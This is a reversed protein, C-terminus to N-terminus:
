KTAGVEVPKWRGKAKKRMRRALKVLFNIRDDSVVFSHMRSPPLGEAKLAQGLTSKLREAIVCRQRAGYLRWDPYGDLMVSAFSSSSIVKDIDAIGPGYSEMICSLKLRYFNALRHWFIADQKDKPRM